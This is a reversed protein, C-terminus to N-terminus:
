PIVWHIPFFVIDNKKLKIARDIGDIHLYGQGQSVIHVIGHCSQWEHRIYWAEQLQCQVNISGSIQAFKMLQDLIDM